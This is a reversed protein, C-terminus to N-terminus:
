ADKDEKRKKPLEYTDVVGGAAHMLVPKGDKDVTEAIIHRTLSGSDGKTERGTNFRQVDKDSIARGRQGGSIAESMAGLYSKSGIGLNTKKKDGM